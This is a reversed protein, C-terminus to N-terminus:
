KMSYSTGCVLFFSFFGPCILFGWGSNVEKKIVHLAEPNNKDQGHINKPFVRRGLFM